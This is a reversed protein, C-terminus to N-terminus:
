RVVDTSCLCFGPAPTALLKSSCTEVEKECKHVVSSRKTSAKATFTIQLLKRRSAPHTRQTRLFLDAAVGAARLLDTLQNSKDSVGTSRHSVQSPGGPEGGGQQDSQCQTSTNTAPNPRVSSCVELPTSDVNRHINVTRHVTHPCFYKEITM